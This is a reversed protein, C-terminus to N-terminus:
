VWDDLKRFGLGVAVSFSPAIEPPIMEAGEILLFPNLISVPVKFEASLYQDLNKLPASGGMLVLRTIVHDSGQTLFFDVSRHVEGVLDKLVQNLADSVAIQEKEGAAIAADKQAPDFLLSHSKKIEDAKAANLDLAKMIARTFTQGSIFIDRVVRTIGSNIISLNTVSHGINLYLTAGQDPTAPDVKTYLNELAFSDVDIIAPTLGSGQLIDIRSAVIEKKAAVLVTEMKKQGEETIENLIHFGFQVDNADFPIFPEAETAITALLEMKTLLPFKVYRVIMSNGSLSTAANKIKIGSKILFARLENIAQIKKEDPSAEPKSDLPIYGWNRLFLTKGRQGLLIVKIAHTGLDVALLDSKPTLFSIWKKAGQAVTEAM